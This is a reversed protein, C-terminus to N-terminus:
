RPQPHAATERWADIRRKFDKRSLGDPMADGPIPLLTAPVQLVVAEKLLLVGEVASWDLRASAGPSSVEIGDPGLRTELEGEFIPNAMMQKAMRKYGRVLYQHYITLGTVIGAIIWLPEFRAGSVEMLDIFASICVLLLTWVMVARFPTRPKADPDPRAMSAKGLAVMSEHLLDADVRYRLTLPDLRLRHQEIADGMSGDAAM